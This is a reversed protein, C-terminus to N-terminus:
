QLIEVKSHNLEKITNCKKEVINCVGEITVFEDDILDSNVFKIDFKKEIVTVLEFIGLSDLYGKSLYNDKLKLKDSNIGTKNLFYEIIFKRVKTM